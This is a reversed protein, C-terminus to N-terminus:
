KLGGKRDVEEIVNDVFEKASEETPFVLIVRNKIRRFLIEKKMWDGVKELM